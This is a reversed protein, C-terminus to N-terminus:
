QEREAGRSKTPHGADVGPWASIKFNQSKKVYHNYLERADNDQIVSELMRFCEEREASSDINTNIDGKVQRVKDHLISTLSEVIKGSFERDTPSNVMITHRLRKVLKIANMSSEFRMKENDFKDSHGGGLCAHPKLILLAAYYLMIHIHIPVYKLVSWIDSDGLVINLVTEAASLALEASVKKSEIPSLEKSIDFSEDNEDEDEDEDTDEHEKIEDFKNKENSADGDNPIGVEMQQFFDDDIEDFGPLNAGMAQFKRVAVSNIHLKAFNYYILTSKSSWVPHNNFPSLLVTWQVMWKDLELNTKFPLGFSSPTLLDWAHGEFVANIAQHYEVQSVLRIDAYNTNFALERNRKSNDDNILAIENTPTIEELTLEKEKLDENEAETLLDKSNKLLKENSDFMSQRNFVLTQQGDLIYLLYWLKLREKKPIVNRSNKSKSGSGHPSILNMTRALQIALGTFMQKNKFWFGCFCLAVITNFAEIETKPINFLIDKSIDYIIKELSPSLHSLLPHHISAICGITAILLPCTDWIDDISYSSIDFGFLQPSINSNFFNFLEKSDERSLIKSLNLVADEANVDESTKISDTASSTHSLPPRPDSTTDGNMLLRQRKNNNPIETSTYERKRIGTEMHEYEPYTYSNENDHQQQQQQQIQQNQLLSLIAGLKSGFGELREEVSHEWNNSKNLGNSAIIANNINRSGPPSLRSAVTNINGNMFTNRSINNNGNTINHNNNNASHVPNLLRSINTTSDVSVNNSNNLNNRHDNSKIPNLISNIPPIESRNPVIGNQQNTSDHIKSTTILNSTHSKENVKQQRGEITAHEHISRNAVKYSPVKYEYVCQLGQAKCRKCAEDNDLKICKVKSKRCHTCAKPRVVKNVGSKSQSTPSELQQSQPQQQPKSHTSKTQKQKLNQPKGKPTESIKTAPNPAINLQKNGSM